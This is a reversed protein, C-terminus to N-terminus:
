AGTPNPSHIVFKVGVKYNNTDYATQVWGCFYFLACGLWQAYNKPFAAIGGYKVYVDCKDFKSNDEHM